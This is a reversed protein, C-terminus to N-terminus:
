VRRQKWLIFRDIRRVRGKEDTYKDVTKTVAFPTGIQKFYKAWSELISIDSKYIRPLFDVLLKEPIEKFKGFVEIVSTKNFAQDYKGISRM